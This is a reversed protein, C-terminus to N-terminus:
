SDLCVGETAKELSQKNEHRRRRCGHATLALVGIGLLVISSPEPIITAEADADHSFPAFKAHNAATVSDFLDFHVTHPADGGDFGIVTVDYANIQASGPSLDSPFSGVFDGIPSDTLSFDGLAFEQWNTGPGFIGHTPLAKGDSLLPSSGDTVTQLLTPVLPLSPDTFGGFGGTTVPTLTVVLDFSSDFAVSLRVDDIIGKGDPGAVNGIAWIRFPVGASSGPPAVVWTETVTDYTAGEIYLQLIPEAKVPVHAFLVLSLAFALEFTRRLNM